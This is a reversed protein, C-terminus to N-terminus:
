TTSIECCPIPLRPSLSSSIRHTTELDLEDGVEQQQGQKRQGGGEPAKRRDRGPALLPPDVRAQLGPEPGGQGGVLLRQAGGVLSRRPEGAPRRKLPREHSVVT